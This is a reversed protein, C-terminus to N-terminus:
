NLVIKEYGNPIKYPFSVKTNFEINRYEIDIVNRQNNDIALIGVSNPVIKNNKQQYDKYRIELLRKQLPQSIQQSALKYNGPYIMFLTKFLDISKVPKLEYSSTNLSVEYRDDRLDFLAEGLLLNQVKKYDLETGLLRSLYEFSGDFYSNELKNYFTVRDPTIMAKVVGLPASLWIAKDKEMRLSVGLSQSSSGDSFDIKLRGTLTKFDVTNKYHNRIITRAPLKADLTQDSLIKASKCSSVIAFLIIGYGLKLGACKMKKMM